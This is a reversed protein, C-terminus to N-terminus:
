HFTFRGLPEPRGIFKASARWPPDINIYFVLMPWRPAPWRPESSSGGTGAVWLDPVPRLPVVFDALQRLQPAWAAGSWRHGGPAVVAARAQSQKLKTVLRGLVSWPANCYNVEERWRAHPFSFADVAETGPCSWRSNFRPLLNNHESAFRDISFLSAGGLEEFLLPNLRWVDSSDTERSLGDALNYESRVYQTRLEIEFSDLQQHLLRIESMMDRASSAMKKMAGMAAQNDEQHLVVKGRLLPGYVQLARTVARMELLTIHMRREGTSWFGRGELPNNDLAELDLHVRAGWGWPSADTYLEAEPDRPWIYWRMDADRLETWWQLDDMGQGSVRVVGTFSQRGDALCNYIERLRFQTLRIAPALHQALGAFKGLQKKPVHRAKQCAQKRLARAEARLRSAKRPTAGFIGLKSDILMGLHELRQTPVHCGKEPHVTLGLRGFLSLMTDLARATSAATSGFCAFDDLYSLIKVAPRSRTRLYRVPVEMLEVFYRPSLTWGFSLCTYRYYQNGVQFCFFRRDEEHVDLCLYADQLDASAMYDGPELIDGIMWLGELKCSGVVSFQNLWSLDTICRYRGPQGAKPLLFIRSVHSCQAATVKEIAGISLLRALEKDLWKREESSLGTGSVGLHRRPPERGPGRLWQARVGQSIWALVKASAGIERWVGLCRRLRAAYISGPPM